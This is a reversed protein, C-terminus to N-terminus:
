SSTPGALRGLAEENAQEIVLQALGELSRKAKQFIAYGSSSKEDHKVNRADGVVLRARAFRWRTERHMRGDVPGADVELAEALPSRRGQGDGFRTSRVTDSVVLTEASSRARPREGRSTSSASV